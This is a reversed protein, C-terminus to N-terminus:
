AVAAAFLNFNSRTVASRSFGASDIVQKLTDRVFGCHHAMYRSSAVMRGMGYIMDLGTIPGAPSDYVVDDTAKVGELDPVVIMAFGGPKLVRLIEGLAQAVEDPYLHELTHTTYVADFPGIEGMDVMSAIVDPEVDPNIDLRVEEYAGLWDPLPQRGCGVHLVTPTM